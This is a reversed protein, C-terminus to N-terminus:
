TRKKWWRGVTVVATRWDDDAGDIRVTPVLQRLQRAVGAPDAIRAFLTMPEMAIVPDEAAIIPSACRAAEGHDSVAAGLRTPSRDVYEVKVTVSPASGHTTGAPWFGRGASINIRRASATGHLPHISMM